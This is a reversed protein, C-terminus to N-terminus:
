RVHANMGTIDGSEGPEVNVTYVDEDEAYVTGATMPMMTFVMLIAMLIPLLRKKM